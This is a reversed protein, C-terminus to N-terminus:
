VAGHSEILEDVIWDVELDNTAGTTLCQIAHQNTSGSVPDSFAIVEVWKGVDSSRPLWNFSQGAFATGAATKFGIRWSKDATITNIRAHIRRRGSEPVASGGSFPREIRGNTATSRVYHISANNSRTADHPPGAGTSSAQSTSSCNTEAWLAADSVDGLSYAKLVAQGPLFLQVGVRASSTGYQWTWREPGYGNADTVGVLMLTPLSLGTTQAVTSAGAQVHAVTSAPAFVGGVVKVFAPMTIYTGLDRWNHEGLKLEGATASVGGWSTVGDSKTVSTNRFTPNNLQIPGTSGLIRM